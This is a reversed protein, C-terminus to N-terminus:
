SNEYKWVIYKKASYWMVIKKDISQEYLKYIIVCMDM